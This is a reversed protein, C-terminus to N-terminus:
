VEKSGTKKDAEREFVDIVAKAFIHGDLELFIPQRGSSAKVKESKSEKSITASTEKITRLVSNTAAAKASTGRDAAANAAQANFPTPSVASLAVVTGLAGYEVDVSTSTDSLTKTVNSLGSIGSILSEFRINGLDTLMTSFAMLKVLASDTIQDAMSNIADGLAAFNNGVNINGIVALSDFIMAMALLDDTKILALGAALVLTGAAFASLGLLAAKGGFAVAVFAGALIATLGVLSGLASVNDTAVYVLLAMSAVVGAIALGIIGIPLALAMLPGAAVGGATALAAIAPILAFKVGIFFALTAGALLGLTALFVEGPNEIGKFALILLAMSGVVMAIAGGVALIPLALKASATANLNKAKAAALNMRSNRLQATSDVEAAATGLGQKTVLKTLEQTAQAASPIWKRKLIWGVRSIAAGFVLVAFTGWGEGMMGTFLRVTEAAAKMAWTLPEIAVALDQLVEQWMKAASVAATSQNLYTKWDEGTQKALAQADAIKKSNEETTKGFLATAVTADQIGLTQMFFRQQYKGMDEWQTESSAIVQQLKKLREDETMSLMEISDVMGGGLAANLKGTAQAAGEFTDFQSVVGLLTEMAVGTAESQAALNKFIEEAKVGQVGLTAMSSNFDSLVQEPATGITTAFQVLGRTMDEAGETSLNLGMRMTNLAKAATDTNVGIAGLQAVLTAMTQQSESGLLAFTAIEKNASMIAEGVEVYSVALDRTDDRIDIIMSDFRDMQGTAAAVESRITDFAKVVMITSQVVRSALTDFTGLLLDATWQKATEGVLARAEKTTKVAHVMQVGWMKQQDTILGLHDSASRLAKDVKEANKIQKAYLDLADQQAKLADAKEKLRKGEETLPALGAKTAKVLKAQARIKEERVEAQQKNYRDEAKQRDVVFEHFGMQRKLEQKDADFKEKAAEAEAERLKEVLAATKDLEKSVLEHKRRHVDLLTARGKMIDDIRLEQKIIKDAIDLIEQSVKKLVAQNQVNLFSQMDKAM